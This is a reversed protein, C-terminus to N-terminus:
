TIGKCWLLECRLNQGVKKDDWSIIKFWNKYKSTRKNKVVDKFAQSNLGM